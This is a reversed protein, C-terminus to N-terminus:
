DDPVRLRRRDTGDLARLIPESMSVWGLSAIFQDHVSRMGAAHYKSSGHEQECCAKTGCFFLARYAVQLLRDLPTAGRCPALSSLGLCCLSLLPSFPGGTASNAHLYDIGALPRRKRRGRRTM